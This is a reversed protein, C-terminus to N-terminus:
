LTLTGRRPKVKSEEGEKCYKHDSLHRAPTPLSSAVGILRRHQVGVLNFKPLQHLCYIHRATPPGRQFSSRVTFVGINVSDTPERWIIWQVRLSGHLFAQTM